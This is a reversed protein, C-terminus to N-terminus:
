RLTPTPRPNKLSCIGARIDLRKNADDYIYDSCTTGPECDADSLCLVGYDDSTPGTCASAQMCSSAINEGIKRSCCVEGAKCDKPDDCRLLVRSQTCQTTTTDVCSGTDASACCYPTAGTCKKGNCEVTSTLVPVKPPAPEGGQAPAADREEGEEEPGADVGLRARLPKRDLLGREDDVITCAAIGLIGVLVAMVSAVKM